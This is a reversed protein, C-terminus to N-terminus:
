INYILFQINLILLGSVLPIISFLFWPILIIEGFIAIFMIFGYIFLYPLAVLIAGISVTGGGVSLAVGFFMLFVIILPSFLILLPITIVTLGFIFPGLTITLGTLFATLWCIEPFLAPIILVLAIYVNWPSRGAVIPFLDVAKQAAFNNMNTLIIESTFM